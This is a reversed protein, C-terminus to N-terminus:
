EPCCAEHHRSTGILAPMVALDMEVQMWKHPVKEQQNQEKEKKLGDVGVGAVFTHTTEIPCWQLGTYEVELQVM